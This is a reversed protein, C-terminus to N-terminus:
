GLWVWHSHAGHDGALGNLWRRAGVWDTGSHGARGRPREGGMYYYSSRNTTERRNLLNFFHFNLFDFELCTYTLQTGFNQM